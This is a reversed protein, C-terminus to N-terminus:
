RSVQENPIYDAHLHVQADLGHQAILDRYPAEDDYFEGAVVLQADPRTALIRPMAELLVHLGKYRRIFGFFLLVPAEEPLGLAARAVDQPPPSGFIDYIPHVVQRIPTDVGLTKLDEAVADSMVICGDTARLFYRALALDGPRREHPIANDVVVLVKIDRKRVHRAITGFSPGFFPMWFKFVVADPQLRAIHRATKWWTVPNITDLLRVTPVPNEVPTTEYQTKGPFLLEPYQRTFTVAATTHGRQQLGWYMTELFHAIGGRYPYM